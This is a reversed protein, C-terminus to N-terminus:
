RRGSFRADTRLTAAKKFLLALDRREGLIPPSFGRDPRLAHAPEGCKETRYRRYWTDTRM